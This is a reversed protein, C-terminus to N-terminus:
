KAENSGSAGLVPARRKPPLNAPNSTLLGGIRSAIEVSIVHRWEWKKKKMGWLRRGVQEM